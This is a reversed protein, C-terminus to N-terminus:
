PQFLSTPALLTPMFLNNHLSQV